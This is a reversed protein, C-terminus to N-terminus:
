SASKKRQRSHFGILCQSAAGNVATQIDCRTQSVGIGDNGLIVLEDLADTFPLWTYVIVRWLIPAGNQYV